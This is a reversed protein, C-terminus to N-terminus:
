RSLIKFRKRTKGLPMQKFVNTTSTTLYDVTDTSRSNWDRWYIEITEEFVHVITGVDGWQYDYVLDGVKMNNM